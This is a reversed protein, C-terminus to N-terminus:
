QHWSPRIRSAPDAPFATRAEPVNRKAIVANNPAYMLHVEHKTHEALEKLEIIAKKLGKITGRWLVYGDPFLEFLDYKLTGVGRGGVLLGVRSINQELMDIEQTPTNIKSSEVLCSGHWLLM